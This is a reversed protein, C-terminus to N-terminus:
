YMPSAIQSSFAIRLVLVDTDESVIVVSHYGATATHSAHLFIRTDTEEQVSNLEATEVFEDGVLAYCFDLKILSRKNGSSALLKRWLQVKHGPAFNKFQMGKKM